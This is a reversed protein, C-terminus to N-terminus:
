DRDNSGDEPFWENVDYDAETPDVLDDLDDMVRSLSEKYDRMIVNFHHPQPLEPEAEPVIIEVEELFEHESVMEVPNQEEEVIIVKPATAPPAPVPPSVAAHPATADGGDDINEGMHNLGYKDTMEMIQEDRSQIMGDLKAKEEMLKLAAETHQKCLAELEVIKRSAEEGHKDLKKIENVAEDLDRVLARTLKVQDTFCGIRDHDGKPLVVAKAGERATCGSSRM